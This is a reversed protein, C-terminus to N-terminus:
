FAGLFLPKKNSNTWYYTIYNSSIRFNQPGSITDLDLDCDGRRGWKDWM